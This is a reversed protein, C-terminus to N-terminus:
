RLGAYKHSQLSVGWGRAIAARVCLETAGAHQSVPQLFVPIGDPVDGANARLFADLRDLDAAKGVPWKLESAARIVAGVMPRGGPMGPKPSLALHDVHLPSFPATGSTEIAVRYGAMGLSRCLDEIPQEAPEGGTLLAWHPGPLESRLFRVVEAPEAECWRPNDGLAEALTGVKHAPDCHWTQKTDCWPCGVGCGQLRVFTMALGTNRGEGQISNYCDNLRIM